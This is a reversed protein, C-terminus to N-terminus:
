PPANRRGTRTVDLPWPGSQMGGYREADTGGDHELPAKILPKHVLLGVLCGVGEQSICLGNICPGFGGKLALM